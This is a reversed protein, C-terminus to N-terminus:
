LCAGITRVFGEIQVLRLKKVHSYFLLLIKDMAKRKRFYYDVEGWKCCAVIVAKWDQLASLPPPLPPASINQHFPDVSSPIMCRADSPSLLSPLTWSLVARMLEIEKSTQPRTPSHYLTHIVFNGGALLNLRTRTGKRTMYRAIVFCVM